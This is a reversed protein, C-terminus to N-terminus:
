DPMSPIEIIFETGKGKETEFYIKGHHKEVIKKSIALGLGTGIGIQKTTTGAVFMRDKIKEDIGTGTDKIKVFLTEQKFETSITITGGNIMSQCANILINMFVQNLMNPYCKISPINSYQKVVEIKNKTEHKILELTLDLEKNIDAYQLDAEDLRVFKKLSKVIGSIRKIAEKDIKNIDKFIELNAEEQPLKAILKEFIDNNSKISALPTNIEHAVGAVLQGLSAMKESNILQLQTEKLENLTQELEENKQKVQSFLSAQVIASALQSAISQLVDNQSEDIYKQNTYIILIGLIDHLKYVPIIIRTVQAPYTVESNIYEKICSSVKIKKAWISQNVVSKYKAPYVKEIVFDQGVDGSVIPLYYVKIAGFLNFLEKLASDLIKNLDMSERIVNSIRHMLALKVTQTQAKQQLDAFKKNEEALNLYQQRIFAYKKESEEFLLDNTINKFMVVKFDQSSFATIQYYFVRDKAQFVANASFNEKSDIAFSVPNANLLNDSDLMCIDFSFYNSFKEFNKVSGFSKLFSFNKFVIKFSSDLILVATSFNNYFSFDNNLM